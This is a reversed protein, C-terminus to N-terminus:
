TRSLGTITMEFYDIDMTKSSAVQNKIQVFPQVAVGAPVNGGGQSVEAGGDVSFLITGVAAQRIRLTVWNTSLSGVAATNSRVGGAQVAGLWSTTQAFTKEFYIGNSSTDGTASGQLGVRVQTDTDTQTLRIVFTMDFLENALLSGSGNTTLGLGLVTNITASTDLRGIGPHGAVPALFTFAAGNNQTWGAGIIGTGAAGAVFDDQIFSATRYNFSPTVTGSPTITLRAM